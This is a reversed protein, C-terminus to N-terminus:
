PGLSEEHLCHLSILSPQHGPRDTKAPRVSMKNTKDHQLEDLTKFNYISSRAGRYILKTMLFGTKPTQSWTLSLNTQVIVSVLWLRSIKYM